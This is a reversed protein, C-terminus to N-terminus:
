QLRSSTRNMHLPHFEMQLARSRCVCIIMTRVSLDLSYLPLCKAGGCQHASLFQRYFKYRPICIKCFCIVAVITVVKSTDFQMQTCEIFLFLKLLLPVDGVRQGNEM